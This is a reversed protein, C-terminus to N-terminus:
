QRSRLSYVARGIVGLLAGIVAGLVAGSVDYWLWGIVTGVAAVTIASLFFRRALLDDYRLSM